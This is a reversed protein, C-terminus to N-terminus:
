VRKDKPGWPGGVSQAGVAQAGSLGHTHTLTHTHTHAPLDARTTKGRPQRPFHLLPSHPPSEKEADEDNRCLCSSFTMWDDLRLFGATRENATEKRNETVREKRDLHLTFKRDGSCHREKRRERQWTKETFTFQVNRPNFRMRLTFSHRRLRNEKIWVSFM